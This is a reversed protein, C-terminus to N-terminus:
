PEDLYSFSVRIYFRGKLRMGAFIVLNRLTVSSAPISSDAVPLSVDIDTVYGILM